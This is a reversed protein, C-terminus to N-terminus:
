SGVEIKWYTKGANNKYSKAVPKEAESIFGAEIQDIIALDAACRSRYGYAYVYRM